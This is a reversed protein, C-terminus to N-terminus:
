SIHCLHLIIKNPSGKTFPDKVSMPLCLSLLLIESVTCLILVNLSCLTGAVSHMEIILYQHPTLTQGTLILQAVDLPLSLFVMQGECRFVSICGTELGQHYVVALM